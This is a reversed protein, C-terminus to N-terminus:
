KNGLAAYTVIKGYTEFGLREYVIAGAPSAHLVCLSVERQQCEAMLRQTIIRAFGRGRYEPMTGIMHLGAHGSSDFFALGCCTESGDVLGLLMVVSSQGVLSGIMMPAVWYGFSASAVMAFRAADVQTKVQIFEINSPEQLQADNLQIAMGKQSFVQVLGADELLPIAADYESLTIRHPLEGTRMKEVMKSVFEVGINQQLRFIRCPWDSQSLNIFSYGQEEQLTKSCRGVLEWFCFLNEAILLDTSSPTSPMAFM